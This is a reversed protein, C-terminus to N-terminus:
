TGKTTPPLGILLRMIFITARRNGRKGPMKSTDTRVGSSDENSHVLGGQRKKGLKEGIHRVKKKKM